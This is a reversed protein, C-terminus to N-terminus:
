PIREEYVPVYTRSIEQIGPMTDVFGSMGKGLSFLSWDNALFSAAMTWSSACHTQEENPRALLEFHTIVM